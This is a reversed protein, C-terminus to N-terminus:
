KPIDEQATCVPRALWMNGIKIKEERCCNWTDLVSKAEYIDPNNSYVYDIFSIDKNNCAKIGEKDRYYDLYFSINIVFFLVLIIEFTTYISKIFDNM